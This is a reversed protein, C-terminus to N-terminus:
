LAEEPSLYYNLSQYRLKDIENNDEYAEKIVMDEDKYYYVGGAEARFRPKYTFFQEKIKTAYSLILEQGKESDKMLHRLGAEPIVETM